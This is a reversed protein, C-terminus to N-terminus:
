QLLFMTHVCVGTFINSTCLQWQERTTKLCCWVSHTYDTFHVTESSRLECWSSSKWAWYCVDPLNNSSSFTSCPPPAPLRLMLSARWNLDFLKKHLPWLTQLKRGFSLASSIRTSISIMTKILCRHNSKPISPLSNKIKGKLIRKITFMVSATLVKVHAAIRVCLIAIKHLDDATM